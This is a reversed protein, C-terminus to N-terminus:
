ILTQLAHVSALAMMFINQILFLRCVPLVFQQNMGVNIAYVAVVLVPVLIYTKIPKPQVLLGVLAMLLTTINRHLVNQSVVTRVQIDLTAIAFEEPASVM